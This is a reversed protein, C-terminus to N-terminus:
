SGVSAYVVASVASLFGVGIIVFVGIVFKEIRALRKNIMGLITDQNSHKLDCVEKNYEDGM